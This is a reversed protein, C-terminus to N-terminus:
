LIGREIYDKVKEPIEEVTNYSRSRINNLTNYCYYGDKDQAFELIINDSVSEIMPISTGGKITAIVTSRLMKLEDIFNSCETICDDYQLQMIDVLEKGTFYEFLMKPTYIKDSKLLQEYKYDVDEATYAFTKFDNGLLYTIEKNELKFEDNPFITNMLTTDKSIGMNFLGNKFLTPIFYVINQTSPKIINDTNIGLIPSCFENIRIVPKYDKGEVNVIEKLELFLSILQEFKNDTLRIYNYKGLEAIAKEKAEQKERYSDMRRNNPNDGGDKVDFVLNFPVYYFDTIWFHEEIEGTNPNKWKYPITPGPAIIERAKVHLFLDMFELLKREYSGVYTCTGGTSFKYTGSISRNALMKEQHQEDNLLTTKGYTRLMREDIMEKYALKCRESCFADYRGKDEDWKTERKDMMCSGTKRKNVLNFVIRSATYGEPIMEEHEDNIHHVLESRIDRFDCYPCKYRKQNAAETIYSFVDNDSVVSEYIEECEEIFEEENDIFDNIIM